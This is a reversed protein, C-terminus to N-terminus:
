LRDVSTVVGDRFSIAIEGVVEKQSHGAFVLFVAGSGETTKSWRYVWRASGDDNTTRSSPPGLRQAVEDQTTVGPKIKFLDENAVYAGEIRSEHHSAVLCGGLTLVSGLAVSLVVVRGAPRM